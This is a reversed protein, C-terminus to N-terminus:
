GEGAQIAVLDETAETKIAKAEGPEHNLHQLAAQIEPNHLMTFVNMTAVRGSVDVKTAANWGAIRALFNSSNISETPEGYIALEAHKAIIMSKLDALAKVEDNLAARVGPRALLSELATRQEAKRMEYVPFDLARLISYANGHHAIIAGVISLDLFKELEPIGQASEHLPVYADGLEDRQNRRRLEERLEANEKELRETKKAM